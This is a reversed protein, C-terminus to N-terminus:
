VNKWYKSIKNWLEDLQYWKKHDLQDFRDIPVNCRDYGFTTILQINMSWGGLIDEYEELFPECSVGYQCNYESQELVSFIDKCIELTDNMLDRQNSYDVKLKDTVIINFNYFLENESLTVDSPVVYMKPYQPAVKTKIDNTLQYIDGIGTSNIQKHNDGITLLDNTLQKYTVNSTDTPLSLTNIPVICQNYDFPQTISINLTWGALVTDFRELFPIISSGFQPEYYETFNGFEDGYSNHLITFIDKSIELTDSLVDIQNSLDDEIRDCIIISLNYTISSLNFITSGPVIYLRTYLPELHTEIDNTIQSLDGYGFSMIQNHNYAILGIDNILTKYNSIM